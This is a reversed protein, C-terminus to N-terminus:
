FWRRLRFSCTVNYQTNTPAPGTFTGTFNGAIFQGVIGYETIFVNVPPTNITLNANVQPIALSVLTQTSGPAIGTRTFTFNGWSTFPFKTFWVTNNTNGSTNLSLSDPPSVFNQPTSNVTLNVFEQTSVGCAQITAINNNGSNVTYVAPISQQTATVDEGILTVSTSAANCLLLNISYAGTNTLTKRIYTNGAQLIIYGNTVPANSCNTVTGNITATSSATSIAINGLSVTVTTTTFTQSYVATACAATSFVELLLQSNEPVAGSVYGSSDTNGYRFNVPNSVVSIKVLANPIPQGSNNVVTCNFQVFNGPVDCNWFSFHSVEGVYNNGSKTASGEEKWLGKTEDFYWLPITAPASGQLSAPIPMTITAKKGVAIQLLEGGTGTLEVAMMGYTTLLRLNGNTNIGRLDGPMIRNLNADTASILQAAVAVNGTYAANTSANVVAGAPIAVAMGSPLTVTGGSAGSVTGANTKPLLKIRFFASKGAAAIFTKITKFYGTKNVTVTAANQTVQVNRMEFYGYKDTIVNVGGVEVAASQVAIDNENTVFGSVVAAAVKTTLDPLPETPPNTGGGSSDVKKCTFLVAAAFLTVILSKLFSWNKILM